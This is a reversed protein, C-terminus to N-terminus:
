DKFKYVDASGIRALLGIKCIHEIGQETLYDSLALGLGIAMIEVIPKVTQKKIAEIIEDGTETVSFVKDSKANSEDGYRDLCIIWVQM